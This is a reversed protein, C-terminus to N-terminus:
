KTKLDSYYVMGKPCPLEQLPIIDNLSPPITLLIALKLFSKEIQSFGYENGIEEILKGDILNM